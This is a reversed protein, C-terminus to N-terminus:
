KKGQVIQQVVNKIQYDGSQTIYRVWPTAVYGSKELVKLYRIQIGSVTFYPIEFQVSIPPQGVPDESAIAALGFHARLFYEKGGQFHKITWVIANLDAAYEATGLTARFKPSDADPPVPVIIKV